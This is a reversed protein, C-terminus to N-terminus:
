RLFKIIQHLKSVARCLSVYVSFKQATRLVAALHVRSNQIECIFFDRFLIFAQLSGGESLGGKGVTWKELGDPRCDALCCFDACLAM